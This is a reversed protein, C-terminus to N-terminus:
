YYCEQPDWRLYYGLYHVEVGSDILKKRQPPIYPTFDNKTCSRSEIYKTCTSVGGFRMELINDTSFFEMNMIPNSNEEIANGYEAQNEGYMVLKVGFKQAM